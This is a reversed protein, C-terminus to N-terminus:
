RFKTGACVVFDEANPMAPEADAIGCQPCRPADKGAHDAREVEFLTECFCCRYITPSDHAVENV